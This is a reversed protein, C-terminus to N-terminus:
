RRDRGLGGDVIVRSLPRVLERLRTCADEGIAEYAVISAEDTAREISSRHERGRETATLSGDSAETVLGRAVMSAVGQRWAEGPWARSAKLTAAPLDGTAAHSVLAEIPGLGHLLLAAVHADGRFERLLTQAHWLVLHPQDPWELAAHAAFLPRGAPHETAREAAARALTAAERM